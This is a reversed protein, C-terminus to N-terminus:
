DEWARRNIWTAPYPILDPGRGAWEQTKFQDLSHMIQSLRESDSDKLKLAKWAKLAPPKAIKRPYQPWFYRHFAEEATVDDPDSGNSCNKPELTKSEEVELRSRSRTRRLPKPPEAPSETPTVIPTSNRSRDYLVTRVHAGNIQTWDHLRYGDDLQDLLQASVVLGLSDGFEAELAGAWLGEATGDPRHGAFWCMIRVALGLAHEESVKMCSALYAIKPHHGIEAYVRFWRLGNVSGESHRVAPAPHPEPPFQLGSTIRPM